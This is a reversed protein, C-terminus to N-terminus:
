EGLSRLLQENAGTLFENIAEREDAKRIEEAAHALRARLVDSTMDPLWVEVPKYGKAILESREENTLARLRGM